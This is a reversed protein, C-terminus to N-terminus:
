LISMQVPRGAKIVRWCGLAGLGEHVIAELGDVAMVKNRRGDEPPSESQLKLRYRLAGETVGLQRALQRVSLGQEVVQAGVTIQELALKAM